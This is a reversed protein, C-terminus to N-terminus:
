NNKIISKDKIYFIENSIRKIQEYDHSILIVKVDKSKHFDILRNEIQEFFKSDLNLFPEDLFLVKPKTIISRIFAIIQQEGGSLKIPNRTLLSSVNYESAYDHILKIIENHKFGKINLVFYLNDFVSRNLFLFKQFFFSYDSTSLVKSENFQISGRTPNILGAIIKLLTTKGSGNSGYISTIPSDLVDISTNNFIERNGLKMSLNKIKCPFYINSM